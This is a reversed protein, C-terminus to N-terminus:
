KRLERLSKLKGELNNEKILNNLAKKMCSNVLEVKTKKLLLAIDDINDIVERELYFTARKMDTM